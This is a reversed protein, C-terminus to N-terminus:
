STEMWKITVILVTKTSAGQYMHRQFSKCKNLMDISFDQCFLTAQEVLIYMQFKKCSICFKGGSWYWNVRGGLPYLFHQKRSGEIIFSLEFTQIKELWIREKVSLKFMIKNKSAM